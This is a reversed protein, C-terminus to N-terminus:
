SRLPSSTLQQVADLCGAVLRRGAASRWTADATEMAVLRALLDRQLEAIRRCSQYPVTSFEILSYAPVFDPHESQLAVEIQKQRVSVADTAFCSLYHFHDRSLDDIADAEPKQRAEYDALARDQDAQQALLIEHLVRCDELTANMGQGCFPLIVHAADGVLAVRGERTWHSCRLRRLPQAPSAFLRAVLDPCLSLLDACAGPLHAAAAAEDALVPPDGALPLFVMCVFSRDRCPFAIAFGDRLPWVHLHDPDLPWGGRPTSPLRAERFGAAFTEHVALVARRAALDARVASRPGDAGLILDATVTRPGTPGQLSVSGSAPELGRCRAEFHLRAGSREAADLLLQNLEIRSLCQLVQAPSGYPQVQLGGAGHIVRGRVPTAIGRVQEGLDLADLVRLGRDSLTICLSTHGGGTDRRLDGRSEFVDVDFGARALYTALTCGATSAGLIAVRKM